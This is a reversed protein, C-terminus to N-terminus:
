ILEQSKPSLGTCYQLRQALLRQRLPVLLEQALVSLLVTAGVVHSLEGACEDVVDRVAVLVADLGVLRCSFHLGLSTLCAAGLWLTSGVGQVDQAAGLM